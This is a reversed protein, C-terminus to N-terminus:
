NSARSDSGSVTTAGDLVAVVSAHDAAVGGRERLDVADGADVRTAPSTRRRRGLDCGAPGALARKAAALPSPM